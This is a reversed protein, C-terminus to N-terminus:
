NGTPHLINGSFEEGGTIDKHVFGNLKRRTNQSATYVFRRAEGISSLPQHDELTHWPHFFLNECFEVQDEYLFEQPEFRLQAIPHWTGTWPKTHLEIDNLCPDGQLMISFDFCTPQKQILNHMNIRYFNPDNASRVKVDAVHMATTNYGPCPTLRYKVAQNTNAGLRYPVKSYFEYTLPNNMEGGIKATAKKRMMIELPEIVGDEVLFKLKALHDGELEATNVPLLGAYQHATDVFFYDATALLFDQTNTEILGSLENVYPVHPGMQSDIGIIKIAFGRSDDVHDHQMLSNGNSLRSWIPFTRGPQAFVGHRYVLPVAHNV